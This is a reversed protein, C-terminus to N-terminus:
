ARSLAVSAIYCALSIGIGTLLRLVLLTPMDNAFGSALSFLSFMPVFVFLSRKRGIRDSLIGGLLAGLFMGLFGASTALAVQHMSLGWERVLVPAAYSFTFIDSLDFFLPVAVIWLMARHWGSIPLRDIRAAISSDNLQHARGENACQLIPPAGAIAM